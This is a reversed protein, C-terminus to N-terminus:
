DGDSKRTFGKLKAVLYTGASCVAILVKHDSLWFLLVVATGAVIFLFALRFTVGWSHTAQLLFDLFRPGSDSKTDDDGSSSHAGRPSDLKEAHPQRARLRWM